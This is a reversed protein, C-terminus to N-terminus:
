TPDAVVTCVVPISKPLPFIVDCLILEVPIMVAVLKTPGTVPVM